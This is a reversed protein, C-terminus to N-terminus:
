NIQQNHFNLAREDTNRLKIMDQDSIEKVFQCLNHDHSPKIVQCTGCLRVNTIYHMAVGINTLLGHRATIQVAGCVGRGSIKLLWICTSLMKYHQCQVSGTLSNHIKSGRLNLKKTKNLLVKQYNLISYPSQYCM